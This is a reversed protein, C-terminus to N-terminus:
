QDGQGCNVGCQLLSTLCHKVLDNTKVPHLIFAFSCQPSVGSCRTTSDDFTLKRVKRTSAFAAYVPGINEPIRERFCIASFSWKSTIVVNNM